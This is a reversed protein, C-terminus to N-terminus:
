DCSTTAPVADIVWDNANPVFESTFHWIVSGGQSSGGIRNETQAGDSDFYMPGDAENATGSINVFGIWVSPNDATVTYPVSLTSEVMTSMGLGATTSGSSVELDCPHTTGCTDEWIAGRWGQGAPSYMRVAGITYPLDEPAFVLKTAVSEGNFFGQLCTGLICVPELGSGGVTGNHMRFVPVESGDSLGVTVFDTAQEGQLGAAVPTVVCTWTDCGVTVGAAIVATDHETPIGNQLWQYQYEVTNNEATSEEVISCTLEDGAVPEEPLIAITPQTPPTLDCSGGLCECVGEECTGNSACPSGDAFQEHLCKNNPDTSEPDCSDQTCPNLDDCDVQNHIVCEGADCAAETVCANDLACPGGNLEEGVCGGQDPDCHEDALCEFDPCEVLGDSICQGLACHDGTTCENDDTCQGSIFTEVAEGKICVYQLCVNGEAMADLDLLEGQECEGAVCTDGDTCKNEDAICATGDAAPAQTCACIDEECVPIDDTCPDEDDCSVFSDGTCVLGSTECDEGEPCAQCTTAGLCCNDSECATGIEVPSCEPPGEPDDGCTCIMCPDGPAPFPPYPCDDGTDAVDGQVDETSTDQDVADGPDVVDGNDPTTSGCAFATVLVLVLGLISLRGWMDGEGLTAFALMGQLVVYKGVQFILWESKGTIVKDPQGHHDLTSFM